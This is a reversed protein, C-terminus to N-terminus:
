FCRCTDDIHKNCAKRRWLCFGWSVIFLTLKWEAVYNPCTLGYVPFNRENSLSTWNRPPPDTNLCSRRCNHVPINNHDNGAVHIPRHLNWKGTIWEGLNTGISPRLNSLPSPLALVGNGIRVAFPQCVPNGTSVIITTRLVMLNRTEIM